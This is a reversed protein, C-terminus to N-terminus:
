IESSCSCIKKVPGLIARNNYKCKNNNNDPVSGSAMFISRAVLLPLLLLLLLMLLLSLGEALPCKPVGFGFLGCYILGVLPFFSFSSSFLAALPWFPSFYSEPLGKTTHRLCAAWSGVVLQVRMTNQGFSPGWGSPVEWLGPVSFFQGFRYSGANRIDVVSFL